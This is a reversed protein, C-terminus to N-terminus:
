TAAGLRRKQIEIFHRRRRMQEEGCYLQEFLWRMGAELEEVSMHRPVFNVDFLTCRDWFHDKL